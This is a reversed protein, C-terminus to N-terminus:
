ARVGRAYRRFSRADEIAAALPLGERWEVVAVGVREFSFRLADRRLRWLRRALEPLEGESATYYGSPSIEVVVLDFGRARLDALANTSRDDLLPSLAIVLAKPPLTRTPVLDIDKWAYNFVVETQLLSDVIRYLQTMGMSPFLWSLVGGFGILGVRDRRELYGAALAAAARVAADLTTGQPGAVEAFSDLFLVVDANREAQRENVYLEGRRASARWNVNRVADGTVFPRLDAFEIGEGKARAVENGAFVQTELPPLLRRLQEPRPFVRLDSALAARQEFAVLGYRDSARVLLDGVRYSGWRGCRIPVVLERREGPALAIAAPRGRPLDLGDPLPLELDLREVRVDSTIGITVGIEDGDVTRDRELEVELELRPEHAAALGFALALVFPAALVILEPRGLALGAVAGLVSLLTYAYLKPASSATM